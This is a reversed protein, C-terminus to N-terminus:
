GILQFTVQKHQKGQIAYLSAVQIDLYDGALCYVVAESEVSNYTAMTGAYAENINEGNKRLRINADKNPLTSHRFYIRYVGDISCTFRGTNKDFHNGINVYEHNYFNTSDLIVGSLQVELTHSLSAIPHYPLNRNGASNMGWLKNVDNYVNLDGSDSKISYNNPFEIGSSGHIKIM